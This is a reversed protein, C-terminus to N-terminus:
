AIASGDKAFSLVKDPAFGLGTETGPSAALTPGGLSTITGGATEVHVITSNGLHEVLQITGTLAAARSSAAVLRVHEPRIGVEVAGSKGCRVSSAPIFNMAPSGIFSAVFRNAPTHYLELPTGIQAIQGRDLVVIRDALTMAETQDHTVYITTVGLKRHLKAIELRMQVRLLADLNSLPEDFLFVSPNRVLARGIAVRQRQGGSLQAPRRDLLDELRLM